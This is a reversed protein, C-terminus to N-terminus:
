KGVKAKFAKKKDTMELAGYMNLLMDAVDTDPKIEYAKELYPIATQFMGDRQKKLVEYRKNDKESTGLKNMEDVIKKEDGIKLLALNIYAGHYTPKIAIAKKYFEEAGAPDSKTSAVGLNFFLDADNPNKEVLVKTVKRYSEMDNQKLYIDAEAQLLDIDDPLVLKAENIAAKAEEIKGQQVYILATYRAIEGRKSVLKEDRPMTALKLRVKDDRDKKAQPTNGYFEEQETVASKAYYNTGEGTYNAKKLELLGNLAMENAEGKLYYISAAYLNDLNTKDLEYSQSLLDAGQKFNKRDIEAQAATLLSTKIQSLASEADATYKSKGAAKESALVSQYAKAANLLNKSPEMKKDAMGKLANGKVFYFQAKETDSAGGILPEAQELQKIAELANGGKMAKEAAKIQDKQAFMAVSFLLASALIAHKSKM